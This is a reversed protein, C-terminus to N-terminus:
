SFYKEELIRFLKLNDQHKQISAQAGLFIEGAFDQIAELTKHIKKFTTTPLHAAPPLTLGRSLAQSPRAVTQQVAGQPLLLPLFPRALGDARRRTLQQRDDEHQQLFFEVVPVQFVAQVIALQPREIGRSSRQSQMPVAHVRRGALTGTM